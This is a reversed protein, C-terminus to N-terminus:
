PTRAVRFGVRGRTNEPAIIGRNSARCSSNSYFWGGGRVTRFVGSTPGPPDILPSSAYYSEAYWDEVWEYVNGHMDHLGLVNAIKQGVPRPQSSSNGSYWALTGLDSNLDTGDPPLNFATDTGARCAFEWEAETPLRVGTAAEFTQIMDWSIQEVPRNPVQSAPVQASETAFFSPNSGIVATWQAQTVEYRGLYFAQSLTVEHVPSEDPDCESGPTSPSCGMM